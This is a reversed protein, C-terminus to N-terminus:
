LSEAIIVPGLLPWFHSRNGRQASLTQRGLKNKSLKGKNGLVFLFSFRILFQMNKKLLEYKFLTTGLFLDGGKFYFVNTLVLSLASCLVGIQRCYKKVNPISWRSSANM